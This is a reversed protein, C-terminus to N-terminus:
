RRGGAWNYISASSDAATAAAATEDALLLEKDLNRLMAIVIGPVVIDGLGLVAYPYARTVDAALPYIFKVPAEFSTAVTLMQACYSM